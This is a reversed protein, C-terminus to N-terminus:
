ADPMHDCGLGRRQGAEFLCPLATFAHMATCTHLLAGGPLVSVRADTAVGSHQAPVMSLCRLTIVHVEGAM